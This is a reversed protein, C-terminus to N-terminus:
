SLACVKNQQVKITVGSRKSICALPLFQFLFDAFETLLRLRQDIAHTNYTNDAFYFLYLICGSVTNHSRTALLQYSLSVVGVKSPPCSLTNSQNRYCFIPPLSLPNQRISILVDLLEVAGAVFWLLDRGDRSRRDAVTIRGM